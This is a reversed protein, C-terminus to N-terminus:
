RLPFGVVAELAAIAEDPDVVKITTIGLARAPKLNVGLDDLFVAEAPEVGLEDCVLHYIAPDPKRLGVRSSEVIVDFHALVEAMPNARTAGDAPEHPVFNNTLLATKLRDHCRRLAEVMQPRLQGALLALVARGDVRHGAAEAEAEFLEAFGALDVENRELRAWANTDPDTANLRRLLGTPLGHDAEYRSFADFPSTLIVGGFDFIVARVPM